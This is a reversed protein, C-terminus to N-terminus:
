CQLIKNGECCKLWKLTDDDVVLLEHFHLSKFWRARFWLTIHGQWDKWLFKYEKPNKLLNRLTELLILPSMSCLSQLFTSFVTAPQYNPKIDSLEVGPLLCKAEAKIAKELIQNLWLSCCIMYENSFQQERHRVKLYRQLGAPSGTKCILEANVKM